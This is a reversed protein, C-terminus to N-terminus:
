DAGAAAQTDWFEGLMRDAWQRVHDSRLVTELLPWTAEALATVDIEPEAGFHTLVERLTKDAHADFFTAIASRREARASALQAVHETITMAAEHALGAGTDDVGELLQRIEQEYLWSAIAKRLSIFKPSDSNKTLLDGTRTLAKRSFTQLFKRMEPELRRDFEARVGDISKGLPGFGFPGLKKMIGPLGWDAVFPNVRENFEKLADFLVDRMTEEMAEQELIRRLLPEHMLGPRGLLEDITARAAAPVYDGVRANRIRGQHLLDAYVANSIPRVMRKFSEHTTAADLARNISAPATVSSLKAELLASLGAGLHAEWESKASDSVIRELFFALQRQRMTAVNM